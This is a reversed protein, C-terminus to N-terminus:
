PVCMHPFCVPSSFVAMPTVCVPHPWPLSVATLVLVRNIRKNNSIANNEMCIVTVRRQGGAGPRNSPEPPPLVPPHQPSASSGEASVRRQPCLGPKGKGTGRGPLLRSPEVKWEPGGPRGVWPWARGREAPASTGAAGRGQEQEEIQGSGPGPLAALLLPAGACTLPLSPQLAPTLSAWRGGGSNSTASSVKGPFTSKLFASM